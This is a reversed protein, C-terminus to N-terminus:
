RFQGGGSRREISSMEVAAKQIAHQLDDEDVDQETAVVGHHDGQGTALQGLILALLANEPTNGAGDAQADHQDKEGQLQEGHGQHLDDTRQEQEPDADLQQQGFVVAM